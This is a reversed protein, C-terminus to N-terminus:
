MHPYMGTLDINDLLVKCGIYLKTKSPLTSFQTKTITQEAVYSLAIKSCVMGEPRKQRISATELGEDM